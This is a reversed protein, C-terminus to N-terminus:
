KELGNRKFITIEFPVPEESGRSLDGLCARTIQLSHVTHPAKVEDILLPRQSAEPWERGRSELRFSNLSLNVLSKNSPPEFFARHSLTEGVMRGQHHAHETEILLEFKGKTPAGSGINGQGILTVHPLGQNTPSEEITLYSWPDFLTLKIFGVYRGPANGPAAGLKGWFRLGEKIIEVQAQSTCIFNVSPRAERDFLLRFTPEATTSM